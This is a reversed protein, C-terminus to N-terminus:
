AITMLLREGDIHRAALWTYPRNILGEVADCELSVCPFRANTIVPPVSVSGRSVPEFFKMLLVWLNAFCAAGAPLRNKRHGLISPM